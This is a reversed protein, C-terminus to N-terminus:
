VAATALKLTMSICLLENNTVADSWQITCIVKGNTNPIPSISKDSHSGSVVPCSTQSCLDFTESYVPLGNYNCKYLVSGSTIENPVNYDVFLTGNQGPIPNTPEFGLKTIQFVSGTNCNSISISNQAYAVQSTFLLCSIIALFM